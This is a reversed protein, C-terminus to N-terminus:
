EPQIEGNAAEMDLVTWGESLWFWADIEDFSIREVEGRNLKIGNIAGTIITSGRGLGIYSNLGIELERGENDEM